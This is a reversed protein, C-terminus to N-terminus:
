ASRHGKELDAKAKEKTEDSVEGGFFAEQFCTRAPLEIYLEIEKM